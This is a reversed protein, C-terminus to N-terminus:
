PTEQPPMPILAHLLQGLFEADTGDVFSAGGLYDNLVRAELAGLLADAMAAPREIRTLGREHALTLFSALGARMAVPPPPGPPLAKELPIGAGRLVVLGPVAQRLFELLASFTPALQERLDVGPVPGTAFAAMAHPAGPCLAKLMLAEKSGLRHFLAAQTVGLRRAVDSVPAAPGLEIFAERAAAELREDTM